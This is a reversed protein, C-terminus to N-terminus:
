LFHWPVPVTVYLATSLDFGNYMQMLLTHFRYVKNQSMVNETYKRCLKNKYRTNYQYHAAINSMPLNWINNKGLPLVNNNGHRLFPVMYIYHVMTKARMNKIQIVKIVNEQKSTIVDKTDISYPLRTSSIHRWANDYSRLGLHACACSTM